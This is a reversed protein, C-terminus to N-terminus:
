GGLSVILCICVKRELLRWKRKASDSSFVSSKRRELRSRTGPGQAVPQRLAVGSAGGVGFGAVSVGAVSVGAVSVSAGGVGAGGVGAGGM